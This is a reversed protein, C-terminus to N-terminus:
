IQAGKYGITINTSLSEKPEKIFVRLQSLEKDLLYVDILPV